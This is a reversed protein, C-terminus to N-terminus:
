AAVPSRKRVITRTPGPVSPPVALLPLVVIPVLVLLGAPPIGTGSDNVAFAIVWCLAVARLGHVLFPVPQVVPRVVGGFWRRPGVTLAIVVLLLVPVLLTLPTSTLMTWNESVVVGLGRWQDHSLVGDVFDGLHTRYATPGVYDFLAFGGVLAVSAAATTAARRWTMREGAAKVALYGFAPAMALPGGGDAGWSPSGDVLLAVLGILVVVAVASRRQRARILTDAVVAAIVIATTAFVAYMVNGQGYYRGGYVPQLGMLSIFQLRSGHSVDQAIVFFTSVALFLAPGARARRWPGRVAALALLGALGLVSAALAAEPHSSRWWPILGVLLAAVPTAAVMAVFLALLTPSSATSRVSRVLAAAGLAVASGVLFLVFFTPVFPQETDLAHVLETVQRLPAGTGSVPRVVLPRGEGLLPSSGTRQVLLAALDATQVVGPQRTSLSTLMGHPVGHGSAIVPVFTAPTGDNAMGSVIVTSRPPLLTLLRGLAADDPRGLDVLTVPCALGALDAPEAVYQDVVGSRNAAGLAANRGVATVCQGAAQLISVPAGLDTAPSRRLAVARWRGWAPFAASGDVAATPARRGCSPGVDTPTGAALIIWARPSCSRGAPTRTAQAGVAGHAALQHLVPMRGSEVEAWTLTPMGVVVLPGDQVIPRVHPHSLWAAILLGVGVFTVSSAVVLGLWGRASM